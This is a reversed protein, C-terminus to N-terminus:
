GQKGYTSQCITSAAKTSLVAASVRYYKIAPAANKGMLGGQKPLQEIFYTTGAAYNSKYAMTPWNTKMWTSDTLKSSPSPSAANLYWVRKISSSPAGRSVTPGALYSEAERLALECTQKTQSKESLNGTIREVLATNSSGTIGIITILLLMLLSLILTAGKEKAALEAYYKKKM